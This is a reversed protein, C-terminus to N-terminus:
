SAVVRQVYRPSVRCTTALASVTPRVEEPLARLDRLLQDRSARAKSAAEDALAVELVAGALARVLHDQRDLAGPDLADTM